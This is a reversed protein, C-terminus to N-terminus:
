LVGCPSCSLGLFSIYLHLAGLCMYLLVGNLIFTAFANLKGFLVCQVYECQLSKVSLMGSQIKVRHLKSTFNDNVTFTDGKEIEKGKPEKSLVRQNQKGCALSQLARALEKAPIETEQQM